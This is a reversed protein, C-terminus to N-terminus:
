SKEEKFVWFKYGVFNWIFVVLTGVLAGVNAWLEPAIGFQPKVINVMFSATGVNLFFGIISVVMFQTFEKGIKEKKSEFTWWKNWGYSNLAAVIFSVGKFVSFLVGSATGTLLIFLNLVGLDLFTNLAGVLAFKAGQYAIKIFRALFYAVYIGAVSLLPLVVAMAIAANISTLTEASQAPIPLEPANVKAMIYLLWAVLEGIVASGIIDAKNFHIEKKTNEAKKESNQGEVMNSSPKATDESQKNNNEKM